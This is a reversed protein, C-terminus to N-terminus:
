IKKVKLFKLVYKIVDVKYFLKWTYRSIVTLVIIVITSSTTIGVLYFYFTVMGSWLLFMCIWKCIHWKWQLKTWDYSVKKHYMKLMYRDRLADFIVSILIAILILNSM